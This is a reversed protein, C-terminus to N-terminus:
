LKKYIALQVNNEMWWEPKYPEIIGQDCLPQAHRNHSFETGLDHASIISGKPLKPAFFALEKSKCGGDCFVWTPEKSIYTEIAEVVTSNFIDEQIFRVKLASFIKNSHRACTDVTVVPISRQVGWLGLVASLAGAGTGLEIISSIQPNLRMVRDVIEYLWYNHQMQQGIFSTHWPLSESSNESYPKAPLTEM